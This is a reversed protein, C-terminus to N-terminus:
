KTRSSANFSVATDTVSLTTSGSQTNGGWASGNQWYITPQTPRYTHAFLWHANTKNLKDILKDVTEQLFKIQEKLAKNEVSSDASKKDNFLLSRGEEPTIIKKDVLEAVDSADPLDKL